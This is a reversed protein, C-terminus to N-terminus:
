LDYISNSKETNSEPFPRPATLTNQGTWSPMTPVPPSTDTSLRKVKLPPPTPVRDHVSRNSQMSLGSVRKSRKSVKRLLTSLDTTSGNASPFIITRRVIAGGPNAHSDAIERVRRPAPVPSGAYQRQSPKRGLDAAQEVIVEPISSVLRSAEDGEAQPGLLSKAALSNNRTLTGGFTMDSSRQEKPQSRALIENLDAQNLGLDIGAKLFQQLAENAPPNVSLQSGPSGPTFYSNPPSNQLNSSPSPLTQTTSRPSTLHSYAITSPPASLPTSPIHRDVSSHSHTSSIYSGNRHESESVPDAQGKRRFRSMFGKLSSPGASSPPSPNTTKLDSTSGLAKSPTLSRNGNARSISSSSANDATWPTVEDGNPQSPKSRLTNRLRKSLSLKTSTNSRQLNATSQNASLAVTPIKDISASSQVNLPGSIDHPNIRRRIIPSGASPFVGQRPSRHLQAMAAETREQVQRILENPDMAVTAKSPADTVEIDGQRVTRESTSPAVPQVPIITEAIPGREIDVLEHTQVVKEPIESVSDNTSSSSAASGSGFIIDALDKNRRAPSSPEPQVPPLNLKPPPEESEEM